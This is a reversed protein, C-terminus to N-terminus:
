SKSWRPYAVQGPVDVRSKILTKGATIYVTRGDPGGFALNTLVDEYIPIRGLLTGVPSIIYIGPPVDATEYNGRSAL